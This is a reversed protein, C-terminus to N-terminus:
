MDAKAVTKLVYNSGTEKSKTPRVVSFSGEGLLDESVDYLKHLVSNRRSFRHHITCTVGTQPCSPVPLMAKPQRHFVEAILRLFAEQICTCGM